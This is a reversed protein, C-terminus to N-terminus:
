DNTQAEKEKKEIMRRYLEDAEKKEQERARNIAEAYKNGPVSVEESDIFRELLVIIESNVSRKNKKGREDVKKYLDKPIRLPYEKMKENNSMM